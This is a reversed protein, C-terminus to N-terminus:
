GGSGGSATVGRIASIIKQRRERETKGRLQRSVELAKQYYKLAQSTKGLAEYAQGLHYYVMSDRPNIMAAKRHWGIAEQPKGEKAKLLGMVDHADFDRPKLSLVRQLHGEAEKLRGKRLLVLALKTRTATDQPDLELVITYELEAVADPLLGADPHAGAKGPFFLVVLLGIVWVRVAM